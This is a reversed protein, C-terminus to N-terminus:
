KNFNSFIDNFFEQASRCPIAVESFKTGETKVRFMGMLHSSAMVMLQSVIHLVDESTVIGALNTSPSSIEFRSYTTISCIEKGLFAKTNISM